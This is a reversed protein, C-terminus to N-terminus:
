DICCCGDSVQWRRPVPIGQTEQDRRVLLRPGGCDCLTQKLGAKRVMYIAENVESLLELGSLGVQGM